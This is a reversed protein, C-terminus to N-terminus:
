VYYRFQKLLWNVDDNDLGYKAILQKQIQRLAEKDESDNAAQIASLYKNYDSSRMTAMTKVEEHQMNVPSGHISWYYTM